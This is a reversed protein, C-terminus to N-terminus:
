APEAWRTFSSQWYTRGSKKARVRVEARRGNPYDAVLAQLRGDDDFFGVAAVPLGWGGPIAFRRLIDGAQGEGDIAMSLRDLAPNLGRPSYGSLYLNSM